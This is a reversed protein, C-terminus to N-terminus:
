ETKIDLSSYDHYESITYESPRVVVHERFNGNQFGGTAEM